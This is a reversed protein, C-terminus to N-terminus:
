QCFKTIIRRAIAASDICDAAQQAEPIAACNAVAPAAGARSVSYLKSFDPNMQLRIHGCGNFEPRTLAELWLAREDAADPGRFPFITPQEPLGNKKLYIAMSRLSADDTHFYLPRQPTAVSAAFADFM